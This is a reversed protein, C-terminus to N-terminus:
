GLLAHQMGGVQHTCHWDFQPDFGQVFSGFRRDQSSAKLFCLLTSLKIMIMVLILIM